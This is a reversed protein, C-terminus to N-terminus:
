RDVLGNRPQAVTGLTLYAFGFAERYGYLWRRRHEDARSRIEAARPHDPHTLLWEESDALFGSEFADLEDRSSTELHLPRYGAGVALDVLAALTPLEPMDEWVLEPKAVPALSDWLGDGFLLRGGPRVLRRLAELAEAATGFAHTAGVCIVVDAQGEFRKGEVSSFTVRDSLGRRGAAQSGRRLLAEDIDIGTGRAGPAREVVRLLLEGWGCGVDLVDGPKTAALRAAIADARGESLPANFTLHRYRGPGDESM